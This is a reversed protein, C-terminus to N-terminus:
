VWPCTLFLFEQVSGAGGGPKSILTWLWCLQATEDRTKGLWSSEPAQPFCQPLGQTM